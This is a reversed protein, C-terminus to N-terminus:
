YEAYKIRYMLYNQLLYRLFFGFDGKMIYINPTAQSKM